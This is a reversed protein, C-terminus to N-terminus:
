PRASATPRKAHHARAAAFLEEYPDDPFSLQDRAPLTAVFALGSTTPEPKGVEAGIGCLFVYGEGLPGQRRQILQPALWDHGTEEILERRAGAEPDEGPEVTGGPLEYKDGRKANRIMLFDHGPLLADPAPSARTALVITYRRM